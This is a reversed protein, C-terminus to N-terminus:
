FFPLCKWYNDLMLFFWGVLNMEVTCSDMFIVERSYFHVKEDPFTIKLSKCTASIFKNATALINQGLCFTKTMPLIKKDSVFNIEDPVFFIKDSCFACTNFEFPLVNFICYKDVINNKSRRLGRARVFNLIQCIWEVLM